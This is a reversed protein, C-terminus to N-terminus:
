LGKAQYASIDIGVEGMVNVAIPNIVSPETGASWAEYCDGHLTNMFGEAMQSRASNHTCIFLMKKKKGM